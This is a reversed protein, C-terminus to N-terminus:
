DLPVVLVPCPSERLVKEATSGKFLRELGRPRRTGMVILRARRGIAEGVIAGAPDDDTDSHEVRLGEAQLENGLINLYGAAEPDAVRHAPEAAPHAAAAPADLAGSTAVTPRPTPSVDPLTVGSTGDVATGVHMNVGPTAAEDEPPLVDSDATRVLVLTAGYLRALDKAPALVRESDRRGDLAVIIAASDM